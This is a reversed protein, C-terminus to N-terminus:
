RTLGRRQLMRRTIRQAEDANEVVEFLRSRIIQEECALRAEALAQQVIREDLARMQESYSGRM